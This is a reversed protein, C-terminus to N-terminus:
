ARAPYRGLAGALPKILGVSTFVGPGYPRAIGALLPQLHGELPRRLEEDISAATAVLTLGFEGVEM